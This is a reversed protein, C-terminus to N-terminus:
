TAPFCYPAVFFSFALFCISHTRFLFVQLVCASSITFNSSILLQYRSRGPPFHEPMEQAGTIGIRNAHVAGNAITRGEYAREYSFYEGATKTSKYEQAWISKNEPLAFQTMEDRITMDGSTGDIKRIGYRFAYGDDYCRMTVDFYFSWGKLTIVTENCDYTVNKRKGSVNEYEGQVRRTNVSCLQAAYFDDEEIDIGMESKKVVEAGDKKVTYYLKGDSDLQMAATITNDPSVVEWNHEVRVLPAEEGQGCGALAGLGLVSTLALSVYKVMKKNM